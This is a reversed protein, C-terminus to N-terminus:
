SVVCTASDAEDREWRGDPEAHVSDDEPCRDIGDLSSLQPLKLFVRQRYNLTFAVPNRQLDLTEIPSRKLADLGQLSRIDNDSLHLHVIQPIKPLNKFSPIFNSCLNLVNCKPLSVSTLDVLNDEMLMLDEVCRLRKLVRLLNDRQYDHQLEQYSLNVVTSHEWNETQNRYNRRQRGHLSHHISRNTDDRMKYFLMEKEAPGDRVRPAKLQDGTLSTSSLDHWVSYRFRHSPLSPLKSTQHRLKQDQYSSVMVLPLTTSDAITILDTSLSSTDTKDTM